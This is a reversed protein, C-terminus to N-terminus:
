FVIPASGGQKNYDIPEAPTVSEPVTEIAPEQTCSEAHSLSIVSERIKPDRNFAPSKEMLLIVEDDDYQSPTLVVYKANAIKQNHEAVKDTGYVTKILDSDQNVKESATPTTINIEENDSPFTITGSENDISKTDSITINFGSALITMKVKEGLTNDFCVGWKIKINKSLSAAFETIENMEEMLLKNQAEPNFYLYFLLRQSTRIDSHKLLPSNLADTISKTVRKEGEGYGTSIVSTSSDTLTTVVDRFDVNIHGQTNIIDAISRTANLLTDDSKHFANIFDLDKYIETLRENNIILLSDVHKQMEKAGNLAKAIKPEGEFLFPITVIGITLIGKEKALQAVIPGAGTGTGGGMGATIFVMQTSEDLLARIQDASQEAAKRGLEPNDGAGLGKTIGEGLILKTKIPSNRIAQEDTNCVAFSVNEIGSNHMHNVANCGGGGVGIVKILTPKDLKEEEFARADHINQNEM